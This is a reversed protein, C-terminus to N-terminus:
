ASRGPKSKRLRFSLGDPNRSAFALLLAEYAHQRTLRGGGRRRVTIRFDHSERSNM